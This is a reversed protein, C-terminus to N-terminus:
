WTDIDRRYLVWNEAKNIDLNSKYNKTIFHISNKIKFFGIKKVCSFVIDNYMENCCFSLITIFKLGRAKKKLQALAEFVFSEDNTSNTQVDGVILENIYKGRKQFKLECTFWNDKKEFIYYYTPSLNSYKSRWDKFLLNRDLVFHSKRPIYETKSYNSEFTAMLKQQNIAFLFGMPNILKVYWNIDLLNTWKNKLYLGLIPKIPFGVLFDINLNAQQEDLFDLMRNYLGKGRYNKNVIVNGCQYSARPKENIIYPWYSFSVFGAVVSEDLAVIRIAKDKQFPHNYFNDFYESFQLKENGYEECFLDIVQNRMSQDYFSFVLNDKKKVNM